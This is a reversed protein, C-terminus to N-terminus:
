SRMGKGSKRDAEMLKMLVDRKNRYREGKVYYLHLDLGWRGVGVEGGKLDKAKKDWDERIRLCEKITMLDYLDSYYGVEKLYKFM